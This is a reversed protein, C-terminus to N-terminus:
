RSFWPDCPPDICVPYRSITWRSGPVTQESAPALDVIGRGPVGRLWWRKGRAVECELAYDSSGEFRLVRWATGSYAPKREAALAVGANAARGELWRPGEGLGLCRIFFFEGGARFVKWKTGSHTRSLEPAFGLGGRPVHGILYRSRGPGGDANRLSITAGHEVVEAAAASPWLSALTYTAATCLFARKDM